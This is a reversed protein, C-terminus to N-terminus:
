VFIFFVFLEVLVLVNVEFVVIWELSSNFLLKNSGEFVVVVDGDKCDCRFVVLDIDWCILFFVVKGGLLLDGYFFFGFVLINVFSVVFLELKGESLFGGDIFNNGLM